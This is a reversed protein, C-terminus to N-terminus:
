RMTNTRQILENYKKAVDGIREVYEQRDRKSTELTRRLFKSAGFFDKMTSEVFSAMLVKKVEEPKEEGFAVFGNYATELNSYRKQYAEKDIAPSDASEPLLNILAKAAIMFNRLHWEYNKGKAKELMALQRQDVQTKLEDLGHRLEAEARFTAEFLPMMSAHFEKAGKADDDRYDEQEYYDSAKKVIPELAACSEAMRAIIADLEPLPPSMGPGKKAATTVDDVSSKSIDYLGYTIYREKGTPGKKVNVWSAYRDYSRQAGAVSNLAKVYLNTKTVLSQFEAEPMDAPSITPSQAPVAAALLPLLPAIALFRLWRAFNM